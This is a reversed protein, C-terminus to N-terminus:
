HFYKYILSYALINQSGFPKNRGQKQMSSIEEGGPPASNALINVTTISPLFPIHKKFFTGFEDLEKLKVTVEIKKIEPVM